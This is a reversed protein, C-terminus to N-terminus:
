IITPLFDVGVEISEFYFFFPLKGSTSSQSMSFTLKACSRVNGMAPARIPFRREFNTLAPTSRERGSVSGHMRRRGDTGSWCGVM